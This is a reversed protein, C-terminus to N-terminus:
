SAINARTLPCLAAVVTVPRSTLTATRPVAHKRSASNELVTVTKRSWTTEGPSIYLVVSGSAGNATAVSIAATRFVITRHTAEPPCGDTVDDTRRAYSGFKLVISSRLRADRHREGRQKVPKVIGASTASITLYIFRPLFAGMPM